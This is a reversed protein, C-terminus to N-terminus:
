IVKRLEEDSWDSKDVASSDQEKFLTSTSDFNDLSDRHSSSANFIQIEEWILERWDDLTVAAEESADVEVIHDAIPEGEPYRCEQVYPHELAVSVSIRDDPDLALMKGLLDVAEASANPLITFFDVRPM